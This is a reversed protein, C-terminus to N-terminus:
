WASTDGINIKLWLGQQKFKSYGKTGKVSLTTRETPSSILQSINIQLYYSGSDSETLDNIIISCARGYRDNELLSVRANLPEYFQRYHQFIMVPNDCEETSKCKFWYIQGKRAFPFGSFTCPLVACLGAEASVEAEELTVCFNSQCQTAISISLGTFLSFM